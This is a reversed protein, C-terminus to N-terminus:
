YWSSFGKRQVAAMVVVVTEASFFSAPPLLPSIVKKEAESFKAPLSLSGLWGLLVAAGRWCWLEVLNRFEDPWDSVEPRQAGPLCAPLLLGGAGESGELAPTVVSEPAFDACSSPSTKRGCLHASRLQCPPLLVVLLYLSLSLPLSFPCDLLCSQM